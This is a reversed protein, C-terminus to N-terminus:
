TPLSENDKQGKLGNHGRRSEAATRPPPPVPDSESWHLTSLHFGPLPIPIYLFRSSLWLRLRSDWQVETRGPPGWFWNVSELLRKVKAHPYVAKTWFTDCMRAEHKGDFDWFWNCDRLSKWKFKKGQSALDWNGTTETLVWGFRLIAAKICHVTIFGVVSVALSSDPRAVQNKELILNTAM